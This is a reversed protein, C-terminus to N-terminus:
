AARRRRRRDRGRTCTWSAGCTRRCRRARSWGRGARRACSGRRMTRRSTTAGPNDGVLLEAKLSDGLGPLDLFVDAERGASLDVERGASAGASTVRVTGREIGAGGRVRVMVQAAPRERAAVTVIRANRVSGAPPIPIVREHDFGTPQDSLVLVPGPGRALAARVAVRLADRSDLATPSQVPPYLLDFADTRQPGPGPVVSREVRRFPAVRKLTEGAVLVSEVTRTAGGSGRASMTYGRDIVVAVASGGGPWPVAPRGAALVALLMALVALAVAVPPPSVRRRVRVGEAPVQWLDLFPVDTRRRRGWLLYLVLASWPLLGLLWLPAAWTM